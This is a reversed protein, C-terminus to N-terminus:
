LFSLTWGCQKRCVVPVTCALPPISAQLSWFSMPCALMAFVVLYTAILGSGNFGPNGPHCLSTRFIRTNGAKRCSLRSTLVAAVADPVGFAPRPSIQSNESANPRVGGTSQKHVLSL